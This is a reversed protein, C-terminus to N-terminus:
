VDNAPGGFLFGLIIKLIERLVIGIPHGHIIQDAELKGM